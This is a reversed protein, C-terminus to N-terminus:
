DTLRRNAPVTTRQRGPQLLGEYRPAELLRRASATVDVVEGEIVEGSSALEARLAVMADDIKRQGVAKRIEQDMQANPDSSLLEKARLQQGRIRIEREARDFQQDTGNELYKSTQRQIQEELANLQQERELEPVVAERGKVLGERDKFSRVKHEATAQLEAYEAQLRKIREESQVRLMVTREALQEDGDRLFDKAQRSLAEHNELETRLERRKEEARAMTFSTAEAQLDLGQRMQGVVERLTLETETFRRWWTRVKNMLGTM